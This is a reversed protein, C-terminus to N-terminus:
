IKYEKEAFAAYNNREKGKRHPKVFVVTGNALHRYHGRVGWCLCKFEHRIHKLSYHTLDINYTTKLVVRNKTKKHIGKGTTYTEVVKDVNKKCAAPLMRIFYNLYFYMWFHHTIFTNDDEGPSEFLDNEFKSSSRYIIETSFEIKQENDFIDFIKFRIKWIKDGNGNMSEMTLTNEVKNFGYNIIYDTGVGLWTALKLTMSPLPILDKNALDSMLIKKDEILEDISNMVKDYSDQGLVVIDNRESKKNAMWQKFEPLNCYDSYVPTDHKLKIPIFPQPVFTYNGLNVSEFYDGMKIASDRTAFLIAFNVGKEKWWASTPDRQGEMDLLGVFDESEKIKQALFHNNIFKDYSLSMYLPYVEDVYRIESM